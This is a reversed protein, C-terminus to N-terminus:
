LNMGIENTNTHSNSFLACTLMGQVTQQLSLHGLLLYTILYDTVSVVRKTCSSKALDHSIFAGHRVYKYLLLPPQLIYFRLAILAVVVM